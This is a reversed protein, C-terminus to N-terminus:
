SELAERAFKVAILPLSKDGRKERELIKRAWSKHYSTDEPAKIVESAKLEAMRRQAEARDAQTKGPPPLAVMPVPIDAWQGANLSDTLAKEWRSKMATYTMNLLDHVMKSAAWFIAPHSWEGVRGREREQLGHVAEYYAAVPDVPPRCMRKFEPLTPPWDRGALGEYGRRLEDKSYGALEHAWHAILKEPDTGSWHDTFKKGYDLLMKDFLKEIWTTPLSRTSISSIENGM